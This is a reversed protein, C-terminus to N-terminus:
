LAHVLGDSQIPYKGGNVRPITSSAVSSCAKPMTSITIATQIMQPLYIKQGHTAAVTMSTPITTNLIFLKTTMKRSREIAAADRASVSIFRGREAGGEDCELELNGCSVQYFAALDSSCVDSSWDCDFRTHRRRSSFLLFFLVICM